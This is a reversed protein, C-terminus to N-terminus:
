SPHRSALSRRPSITSESVESCSASLGAGLRQGIQAVVACALGVFALKVIARNDLRHVALYPPHRPVQRLFLLYVVSAAALFAAVTVAAVLIEFADDVAADGRLIPFAYYVISLGAVVPLTTTITPPNGLLAM